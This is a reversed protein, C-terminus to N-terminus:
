IAARGPGPHEIPGGGVAGSQHHPGHHWGRFPKAPDGVEQGEKILVVGFPKDRDLCDEIMGKYQEEFIHVPLPMGPFLVVNLPFLPLEAVDDNPVPQAQEM